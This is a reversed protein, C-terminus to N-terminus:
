CMPLLHGVWVHPFTFNASICVVITNAFDFGPDPAWGHAPGPALGPALGDRRHGLVGEVGPHHRLLRHVFNSISSTYRYTCRYIYVPIYWYIYLGRVPIRLHALETIYAAFHLNSMIHITPVFFSPSRPGAPINQIRGFIICTFIFFFLDPGM